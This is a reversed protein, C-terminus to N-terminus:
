GARLFESGLVQRQRPGQPRQGVSLKGIRALAIPLHDDILRPIENGPETQTLALTSIRSDFGVYRAWRATSEPRAIACRRRRVLARQLEHRRGMTGQSPARQRSQDLKEERLGVPISIARGCPLVRQAEPREWREIMVCQRENGPREGIEEARFGSGPRRGRLCRYRAVTVRQPGRDELPDRGERRARVRIFRQRGDQFRTTFDIDARGFPRGQLRNPPSM